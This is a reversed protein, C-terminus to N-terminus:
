RRLRRDLAEAIAAMGADNPHYVARGSRLDELNALGNTWPKASCAHHRKSLRSAKLVDAGERRAAQATVAALRKAVSRAEDAEEATLKTVACTGRPPLVTLYDVFIVKAKPARQRVGAAILRLQREVTALDADSPWRPEPCKRTSGAPRPAFGCVAMMMNGIYRLDNGGITITVLKTDATVADIQPPLAQWPGLIHATTAGGCSVDTLALKRKRALLQAYNDFSRQCRGSAPDRRGVGPGAAFSSGMAVYRDGARPREASASSAIALALSVSLITMFRRM